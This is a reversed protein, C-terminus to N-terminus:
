QARAHIRIRHRTRHVAKWCAQLACGGRSFTARRANIRGDRWVREGQAFQSGQAQHESVNGASMTCHPKKKNKLVNTSRRKAKAM